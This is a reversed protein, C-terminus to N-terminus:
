GHEAGGSLGTLAACGNEAVACHLIEACHVGNESFCFRQEGGAGNRDAVDPVVVLVAGVTRLVDGDVFCYDVCGTQCYAGVAYEGVRQEIHEVVLRREQLFHGVADIFASQANGAPYAAASYEQAAPIVHLGVPDHNRVALLFGGEVLVVVLYNVERDCAFDAHQEKHGEGCIGLHLLM